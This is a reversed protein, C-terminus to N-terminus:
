SLNMKAASLFLPWCRLDPSPIWAPLSPLIITFGLTPLAQTSELRYESGVAITVAANAKDRSAAGLWRNAAAVDDDVISSDEPILASAVFSLLSSLLLLLLLLVGDGEVFKWAVALGVELNSSIVLVLAGVAAGVAAGVTAAVDAGPPLTPTPMTFPVNEAVPTETNSNSATPSSPTTWATLTSLYATRIAHEPNVRTHKATSTNMKAQSWQHTSGRPLSSPWYNLNCFLSTMCVYTCTDAHGKPLLSLFKESRCSSTMRSVLLFVSYTQKQRKGGRIIHVRKWSFRYVLGVLVCCRLASM